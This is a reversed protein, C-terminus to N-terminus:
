IHKKLYVKRLSLHRICIQEDVSFASHLTVKTLKDIVAQHCNVGSINYMSMENEKPSYEFCMGTSENDDLPSDKGTLIESLTSGDPSFLLM